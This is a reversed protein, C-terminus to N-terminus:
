RTRLQISAPISTILQKYHTSGFILDMQVLAKCQIIQRAFVNALQYCETNNRLIAGRALRIEQDFNLSCTSPGGENTKVGEASCVVAKCLSCITDPGAKSGDKKRQLKAQWGPFLNVLHRDQPHLDLLLRNVPYRKAFGSDLYAQAVRHNPLEVIRCMFRQFPETWARCVLSLSSMTGSMHPLDIKVIWDAIKELVVPPLLHALWHAEPPHRSM